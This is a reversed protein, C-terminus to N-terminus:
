TVQPIVDNANITRMMAWTAGATDAGIVPGKDVQVSRILDMDIYTVTLVGSIVV